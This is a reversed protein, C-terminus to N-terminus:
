YYRYIYDSTDNPANNDSVVKMLTSIRGQGDYTYYYNEQGNAYKLQIPVHTSNTYSRGYNIFEEARLADGTQGGHRLDYSYSDAVGGPLGFTAIDGNNWQYTTAAVTYFPYVNSPSKYDLEALENGNYKMLLTDTKQIELIQGDTNAYVVLSYSQQDTIVFSSGTYSFVIFSNSGTDTGGGTNIISDVNNYADYTIHYHNVVNGSLYRDIAAIKISSLNFNAKKKCSNTLAIIFLFLFLLSIKRYHM